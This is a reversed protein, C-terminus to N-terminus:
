FKYRVGAGARTHYSDNDSSITAYVNADAKKSPHFTVAPTVTLFNDAGDKKEIYYTAEASITVLDTLDFSVAPTLTVQTPATNDFYDDDAIWFHGLFALKLKEIGTYELLAVVATNDSKKDDATGNYFAEIVFNLDEVATLGFSGYAAKALAYGGSVFFEDTKYKASATIINKNFKLDNEKAKKDVVKSDTQEYTDAYKDTAQVAIFLNEIPQIVARVGYGKDFSYDEWGGTSTYTDVLKGGEAIVLGDAFKAYAQAWRIDKKLDFEKLGDNQYRFTVGGDDNEYNFNFRIRSVGGFYEGGQWRDTWYSVGETDESFGGRLFGSIKVDAFASQALLTAAIVALTPVFKKM